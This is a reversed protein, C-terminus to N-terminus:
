ISQSAADCLRGSLPTEGCPTIFCRNVCAKARAQGAGFVLPTSGISGGGGACQQICARVIARCDQAAAPATAFILISAAALVFTRMGGAGYVGPASTDYCM